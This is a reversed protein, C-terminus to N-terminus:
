PESTLPLNRQEFDASPSPSPPSMVADTTLPDDRQAFIASPSLVMAAVTPYSYYYYPARYDSLFTIPGGVFPANVFGANVFPANVFPVYVFPANVTPASAFPAGIFFIGVHSSKHFNQGLLDGHFHGSHSWATANMALGLVMIAAKLSKPTKM